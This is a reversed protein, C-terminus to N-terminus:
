FANRAAVSNSNSSRRNSVDGSDVQWGSLDSVGAKRLWVFIACSLSVRVLFRNFFLPTNALPM